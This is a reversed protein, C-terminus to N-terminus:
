AKHRCFSGSTRWTLALLLAIVAHLGAVPWLLPGGTRLWALYLAVMANYAMMGSLSLKYRVAGSPDPWCGIGLGILAIGATRGLTLVQVSEGFGFLLAVITAPAVVLALGTCAELVAAFTLVLQVQTVRVLVYRVRVCEVVVSLPVEHTRGTVICAM